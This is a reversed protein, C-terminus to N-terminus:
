YEITLNFVVMDDQPKYYTKNTKAVAMINGSDDVLGIETIRPTDGGTFTPNTSITFENRDAICTIKQSITSIVSNFTATTASATPGTTLFNNVITPETIVIFGKDLYAIGVPKDAVLGLGTNSKFNWSQKGNLSFPKPLSYGTSWSKSGDNNPPQILDSFLLCRNPGFKQLHISQDNVRSDLDPSSANNNEYTGYIDYTSLLTSLQLYISKGDILEGYQSSDIGIVLIKESAMGSLATDLYGGNVSTAGTYQESSSSDIPLAFSYFLNTLVDTNYDNRDVINLTLTNASYYLTNYGIPKQTSLITSSTPLVPKKNLGNRFILGSRFQYGSGGNNLSLGFNDGSFDPIYGSTLGSFVNYNADSDGLIFNTISTGGGNILRQRGTPTLKGKINITTASNIFGM